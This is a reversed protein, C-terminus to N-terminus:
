FVGQYGWATVQSHANGTGLSPVSVTVSTNVASAPICPAFSYQTLPLILTAGAPVVLDFTTTAAVNGVTIAVVSTSTAGTGTVSFGCLYTIRNQIAPLTATATAAAQDGSTASIGVGTNPELQQSRAHNGAFLAAVLAALLLTAISFAISTTKRM